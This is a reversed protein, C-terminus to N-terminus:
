RAELRALLEFARAVGDEDNSATVHGARAKLAPDANGLAIGVGAAEILPIDNEGDGIAAVDARAVGLMEMVFRLAVGKDVGPPMFELFSAASRVVRLIGAVAPEAVVRLAELRAPAGALLLKVPLPLTADLRAVHRLPPEHYAGLIDDLDRQPADTFIADPTYWAVPLDPAHRAVTDLALRTEADSLTTVRLVAQDPARVIAAGNCTITPGALGLDAVLPAIAAYLKGTALVITLGRAIQDLVARRVAPALQHQSDLLTGDVDLAILRM